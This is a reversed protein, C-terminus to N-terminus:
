LDMAVIKMEVTDGYIHKIIETNEQAHLYMVRSRSALLIGLGEQDADDMAGLFVESLMRYMACSWVFALWMRQHYVRVKDEATTAEPFEQGANFADKWARELDTPTDATVRVGNVWQARLNSAFTEFDEKVLDRAVQDMGRRLPLDLWEVTKKVSVIVTKKAVPSRICVSVGNASKTIYPVSLNANQLVVCSRYRNEASHSAINNLSADVNSAYESHPNM